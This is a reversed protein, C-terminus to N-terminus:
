HKLNNAESEICNRISTLLYHCLDVRTLIQAKYDEPNHQKILNQIQNSTEELLGSLDQLETNM